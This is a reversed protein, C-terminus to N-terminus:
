LRHAFRYGWVAHLGSYTLWVEFGSRAAPDRELATAIDERTREFLPM